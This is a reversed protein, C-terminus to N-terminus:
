GEFDTNLLQKIRPNWFVVGNGKALQCSAAKVLETIEKVMVDSSM